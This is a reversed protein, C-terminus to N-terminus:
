KVGILGAVAPKSQEVVNQIQAATIGLELLVPQETAPIQQPPAGPLVYDCLVDSAAVLHAALHNKGGSRYDHHFQAADIVGTPLKWSRCLTSGVATHHAAIRERVMEAAAHDDWTAATVLGEQACRELLVLEGIDHLLGALFGYESEARVAKALLRATSASALMRRRFGDVQREFGRVRFMTSNAVVMVVVDRVADLGIRVVADRVSLIPMRPAFMASNAISVVQASIFPDRTLTREMQAADGGARSCMELVEAAVDPLSRRLAGHDRVIEEVLHDVRFAATQSSPISITVRGIGPRPVNQSDMTSPTTNMVGSKRGTLDM